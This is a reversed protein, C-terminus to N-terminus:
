KKMKKIILFRNLYIVILLKITVLLLYSLTLRFPRQLDRLSYIVAEEMGSVALGALYPKYSGSDIRAGRSFIRPWNNSM